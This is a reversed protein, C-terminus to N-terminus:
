FKIQNMSTIALIIGTVIVGIVSGIVLIAIPELLLLFRKMRVRGSQELLKALSRLMKPLEGSKEGVRILNHGTATLAENDQLAQSLSVGSRVSRTVQNLKAHLSPLMIGQGALELARMLAVRNELLTGLMAAWRATESELLWTGVLPLRLVAERLQIRFTPQQLLYILVAIFFVLGGSILLLNNNLFMGTNLVAKALWPIDAANRNRLMSSFRPVVVIFIILVALIGSSILIIPYIMANRMDDKVQTDYELQAVGDRLAQAVKGTLEGAEVLQYIYWPLKFDSAQLATSFATGQRLKKAMENFNQTVFPPHSSHALSEVAEILSVGSELLTSLEHLVVLVDRQRPKTAKLKRQSKADLLTLSVPTLGRRQLQRIADRETEVTLIGSVEQSQGDIAQYKYRM